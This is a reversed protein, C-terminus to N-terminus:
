LHLQCLIERKRDKRCCPSDWRERSRFPKNRKLTLLSQLEHSGRLNRMSLNNVTEDFRETEEEAIRKAPSATAAIPNAETLAPWDSDDAARGEAPASKPAHRPCSLLGLSTPYRGSQQNCSDRLSQSSDRSKLSSADTDRTQGAALMHHFMYLPCRCSTKAQGSPHQCEYAPPSQAGHRSSPQTTSQRRHHRDVSKATKHRLAKSATPLTVQLAIDILM